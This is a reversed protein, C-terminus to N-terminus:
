PRRAVARRGRRQSGLTQGGLAPCVLESKSFGGGVGESGAARCGVEGSGDTGEGQPLSRRSAQISMPGSRRDRSRRQSKMPWLTEPAPLM